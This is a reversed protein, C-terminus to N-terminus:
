REHDWGEDYPGFLELQVETGEPYNLLLADLNNKYYKEVGELCDKAYKRWVNKVNEDQSDWSKGYMNSAGAEIEEDTPM